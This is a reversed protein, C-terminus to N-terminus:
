IGSLSAVKLLDDYLDAEIFGAPVSVSVIREASEDPQNIGHCPNECVGFCV